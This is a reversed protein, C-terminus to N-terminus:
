KIVRDLVKKFEIEGDTVCMEIELFYLREKLKEGLEKLEFLRVSDKETTIVFEPKHKNVSEQIKEVDNGSFSHHDPFRIFEKVKLGLSYLCKEYREPNAIGSFAICTKGNLLNWDVAGDGFIKRLALPVTNVGIKLGRELQSKSTHGDKRYEVEVGNRGNHLGTVAVVDARRLGRLPERRLGAPLMLIEEPPQEGNMMVIDLDRDLARHQFGDDLIIVDVGYKEVALRASIVRKSEVIVTVEPFKKAIQFPEDGIMTATGRNTDGSGIAILGETKRRYGRSLVAIKKGKSLYYRILYEVMQTKGTGGATMNGVSIVPVSVRVTKIIGTDYCWNRLWLILGYLWSFPLLAKL